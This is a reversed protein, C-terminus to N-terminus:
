YNSLIKTIERSAIGHNVLYADVFENGRKVLDQRFEENNLLNRLASELNSLEPEYLTAGKTIYGEEEFGQREPLVVMTPKEIIMADLLATSYNLSIMADCSKILDIINQNQFIPISPDIEQLLPKIDYYFQGPHLKVIIKKNSIKRIISCINKIYEELYQYSRTDNGAFNNHMFANAALLIIGESKRNQKKLFFEDHRPSGVLLIDKEPIDHQLIFDRMVNGWIAIKDGKSPFYPILKHYKEWKKNLAATGHQLLVIPIYHKRAIYLVIKEEFGTHAWELICSVNSKTFFNELLSFRKVLEIFRAEIMEKFRIKILDWFSHDDVSFYKKLLDDMTWLKNLKDMIIKKGNDLKKAIELNSYDEIDVIKSKSNKVIRLSEINWVAPRRQNLLLINKNSTSIQTLLNPYLVPNFDLLLISKKENQKDPQYKLNFLINTTTELIKKIRTYQNRSIKITKMKTGISLPIEIDDFYLASTQERIHSILNINSKEFSQVVKSLSAAIIKSPLDKEIIRSIGLVRKLFLFFYTIIEIEVLFGVNLGEYELLEQFEELKHWNTTLDVALNDIKSEDEKSFYEEILNHSIGLKQLAKHAYFDFSIIKVNKSSIIINKLTEVDDLGEVLILTESFTM